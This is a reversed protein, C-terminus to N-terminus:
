EVEEASDKKPKPISVINTPRVVSEKELEYPFYARVNRKAHNALRCIFVGREQDIDVVVLTLEKADIPVVSEGIKFDSITYKSAMGSVRM